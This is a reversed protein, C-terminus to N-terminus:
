IGIRLCANSGKILPINMELGLVAESAPNGFPNDLNGSQKQDLQITVYMPIALLRYRMKLEM